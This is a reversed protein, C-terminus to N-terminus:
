RILMVIGSYSRMKGQHDVFSLDYVYGGSPMESGNSRGDWGKEPDNSSFMLNGWRSYVNLSFTQPLLNFVPKFFRNEETQSAPMFANPIFQLEQKTFFHKVNGLSRGALNESFAQYHYLKGPELGSVEYSFEGAGTELQIEIGFSQPNPDEGWFFGRQSEAMGGDYLMEGALVASQATVERADLTMVEPVEPQTRFVKVQGRAMGVNNLAYAVVRYETYPSLETVFTSFEGMDEGIPVKIGTQWPNPETGYYVGREFVYQHGDSVVEGGLVASRATIEEPDATIVTALVPDQTTFSEAKIFVWSDLNPDGADAIALKITNVEGPTVEATATLLTTMGDCEIDYPPNSLDANDIFFECNTCPGEAAEGEQANGNNVNNIAVPIDTGPLLAINEGNVFFGFVDNFGTNVYQNYEESGFVYQIFIHEDDPIFDFEIWSADYTNHGPILAELDPDGPLGLAASTSGSTNPGMVNAVTGSSLIIGEEFELPVCDGNSFIGISAQSADGFIGQSTVNSYSIGPGLIFEVIDTVSIEDGDAGLLSLCRDQIQEMTVRREEVDRTQSLLPLHCCCLAFFLVACFSRLEKGATPHDNM